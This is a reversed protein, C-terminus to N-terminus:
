IMEKPPPQRNQQIKTLRRDEIEFSGVLGLGLRLNTMRNKGLPNDPDLIDEERVVLPHTHMELPCLDRDM